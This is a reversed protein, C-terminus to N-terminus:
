QIGIKKELLQRTCFIHDITSRFSRFGCHHDGVIEEAYLILSSLLIYSLMKYTVPLLSIGTYNGCEIKVGKKYISVLDVTNNRPQYGKKFDNIGRYFHRINKIKSNIELKDIKAKLYEKMKNRFHRSAEHRVNNLNDANKQKSNQLWQMKAHNRHDLFDLCKEDFWPKHHKL